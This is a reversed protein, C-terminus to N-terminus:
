CCIAKTLPKEPKMVFIPSTRLHGDGGVGFPATEIAINQTSLDHCLFNSYLSGKSELYFHKCLTVCVNMRFIWDVTLELFIAFAQRYLNSEPSGFLRKSFSLTGVLTPVTSDQLKITTSIDVYISFDAALHTSFNAKGLSQM